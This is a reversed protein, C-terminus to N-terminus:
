LGKFAGSSVYAHNESRSLIDYIREFALIREKIHNRRGNLRIFIGRIDNKDALKNLELSNWKTCAAFSAYRPAAMLDPLTVFDVSLLETMEAYYEKGIGKFWGRGRYKYGDGSASNSNGYKNAYLFNALREPNYAYSQIRDVLIFENPWISLIKKASYNLTETIETLQNTDVSVQAIFAALRARTSINHFVVTNNVEEYFATLMQSPATPLAAQLQSLSVIGQKEPKLFLKM